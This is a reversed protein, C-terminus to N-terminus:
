GPESVKIVTEKEPAKETEKDGDQSILYDIEKEDKTTVNADEACTNSIKGTQDLIYNLHSARARKSIEDLKSAHKKQVFKELPTWFSRVDRSITAALRKLHQLREREAKEIKSRKEQHYRYVMLACKKAAKRKWKREADFDSSLWRMEEILYDWHTKPRPPEQLKPLRKASWLGQKRLENIRDITAKEENAKKTQSEARTASPRVIREVVGSIRTPSADRSSTLCQNIVTSENPENTSASREQSLADSQDQTAANTSHSSKKIDDELKKSPSEERLRKEAPPSISDSSAVVDEDAPPSHSRKRTSSKISDGVHPTLTPPSPTPLPRSSSVEATGALCPVVPTTTSTSAYTASSASSPSLNRTHRAPAVSEAASPERSDDHGPQQQAPQEHHSEQNKTLRDCEDPSTRPDQLVADQQTVPTQTRPHQPVTSPQRLQPPKQDALESQLKTKRDELQLNRSSSTSRSSTLTQQVKLQQTTSSSQPGSEGSDESSLTTGVSPSLPTATADTTTISTSAIATQHTTSPKALGQIPEDTIRLNLLQTFKHDNIIDEDKTNKSILGGYRDKQSWTHFDCMLGDNRLFYLETLQEIISRKLKDKEAALHQRIDDSQDM